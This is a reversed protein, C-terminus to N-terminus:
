FYLEAYDYIIRKAESDCEPDDKMSHGSKEYILLDNKIGLKNLTDIFNIIHKYPVLEDNKGHFVATPVINCTVYKEPSIKKLANQQEPHLFTEQNMPVGCCKSLIHYKWDEFEGSIELLFDSSYCNVPPCYVCAAVPPVPSDDIRTYAYMLSLHGGASGGSLISKNINYGHESLTRKIAKLATSIDDLEDFISINDEVFRYNIAACIYGLSCFYKADPHHGSKDGECWGGGHIFVIIGTETKIKDPVFLDFKQREHNGYSINELILLDNNM